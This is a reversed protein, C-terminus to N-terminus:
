KWRWSKRCDIPNSPASRDHAPRRAALLRVRVLPRPRLLLILAEGCVDAVVALTRPPRERLCCSQQPAPLAAPEPPYVVQPRVELAALEGAILILEDDLEMAEESVLPREYCAPEWAPSVVLYFVIPVGVDFALEEVVADIRLGVAREICGGRRRRRIGLGGVVGGSGDGSGTLPAM